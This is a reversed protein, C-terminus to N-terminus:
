EFNKTKDVINGYLKKYKNYSKYVKKVYEETEKFPIATLNKGDLSYERNKLWTLVNGEGANYASLVTREMEFKNYLYRLYYCGFRINTDISFIEFDKENLEKAIYKATNDTIQMLGKAGKESVASARFRSETKILAMVLYFDLNYEKSYKEVTEEYKLPYIYKKEILPFTVFTFSLIFVIFLFVSILSLLFGGKKGMFFAGVRILIRM